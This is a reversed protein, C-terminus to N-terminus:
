NKNLKERNKMIRNAITQCYRRKVKLIKLKEISILAKEDRRNSSNINNEKKRKSSLKKKIKMFEYYLKPDKSKILDYMNYKKSRIHYDEISFGAENLEEKTLYTNLLRINEKEREITIKEHNEKFKEEVADKRKNYKEHIKPILGFKISALTKEDNVIMNYIIDVPEKKSCENEIIEDVLQYAVCYSSLLIRELSDYQYSKINNNM